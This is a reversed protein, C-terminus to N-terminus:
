QSVESWRQHLALFSLDNLIEPFNRIGFILRTSKRTEWYLKSMVRFVQFCVSSMLLKRSLSSVVSYNTYCLGTIASRMASCYRPKNKTLNSTLAIFVLSEALANSAKISSTDPLSVDWHVRDGCGPTDSHRHLPLATSRHRISEQWARNCYLTCSCKEWSITQVIKRRCLKARSHHHQMACIRHVPIVLSYLEKGCGETYARPSDWQVFISLSGFARIGYRPKRWMPFFQQGGTHYWRSM